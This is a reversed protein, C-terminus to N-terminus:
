ASGWGARIYIWVCAMLVVPESPERDRGRSGESQHPTMEERAPNSPWRLGMGLGREHRMSRTRGAALWRHFIRRPAQRSYNVLYSETTNTDILVISMVFQTRYIQISEWREGLQEISCDMTTSHSAAHSWRIQSCCTNNTHQLLCDRIWQVTGLGPQFVAPSMLM